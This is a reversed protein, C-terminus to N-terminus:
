LKLNYADHNTEQVCLIRLESSYTRWHEIDEAEHHVGCHWEQSGCLYYLPVREQKHFFPILQGSFNFSGLWPRQESSFSQWTIIVMFGWCKFSWKLSKWIQRISSSGPHLSEDVCLYFKGDTFYTFHLLLAVGISVTAWEMNCLEEKAFSKGPM